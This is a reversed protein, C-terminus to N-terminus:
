RPLSGLAGGAIAQGLVVAPSAPPSALACAVLDLGGAAALLAAQQVAVNVVQHLSWYRSRYPWLRQMSIVTHQTLTHQALALGASAAALSFLANLRM